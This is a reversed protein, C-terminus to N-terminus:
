EIMIKEKFYISDNYIIIFYVGSSLTSINIKQLSKNKFVLSGKFDYIEITYSDNIGTINVENKAPNPYVTIDTNNDNNFSIPPFVEITGDFDTQSLKYYSLGTYPNRDVTEYYSLNNTSGQGNINTVIEWDIGNFSREITFFDNNKESATEWVLYAVGNKNKVEFNVLEVPLPNNSTTSALTYIGFISQVNNATIIGPTPASEPIINKNGEDKWENDSTNWRAITLDSTNDVECDPNNFSLSVDLNNSGSLQTLSWYNCVSIHDLSVEKNMHTYLPDSNSSIFTAIFEDTTNSPASISLPYYINNDGLPFIFSSNGIKHVPGNVYSNASAGNVSSGHNFIFPNTNSSEIVGVNFTVNTKVNLPTNLLVGSNNNIQVQNFTINSQSSSINQQATGNLVETGNSTYTGDLQINGFFALIGNNVLSANSELFINNTLAYVSNEIIPYETLGDPIYISETNTPTGIACWNEDIEWDNNTLEGIKGSTWLKDYTANWNPALNIVDLAGHAQGAGEVWRFEVESNEDLRGTYINTHTDCCGNHNFILVGDIFVEVEDDHSSIDLQYIGCEFNTRKYSVSFRDNNMTCGNYSSSTSPNSNSNWYNQSNFSLNADTYYGAYDTFNQDNYAYAVWENDGFVDDNIENTVIIDVTADTACSFSSTATYTVDEGNNIITFTGDLNDTIPTINGNSASWTYNSAGSLTATFSNGSSCDFTYDTIDSTITLSNTTVNVAITDEDLINGSCYSSTVIVEYM